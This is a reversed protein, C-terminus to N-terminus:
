YNNKRDFSYDVLSNSSKEFRPETSLIQKSNLFCLMDLSIEQSITNTSKQTYVQTPTITYIYIVNQKILPKIIKM